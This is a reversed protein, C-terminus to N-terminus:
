LVFLCVCIHLIIFSLMKHIYIKKVNQTNYGGFFVERLIAVTLSRFMYCAASNIICYIYM